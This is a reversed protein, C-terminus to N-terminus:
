EDDCNHCIYHEAGETCAEHSWLQCFLCKVWVEGPLSSSFTEGCVLCEEDKDQSVTPATGGRGLLRKKPASPKKQVRKQQEEELAARVPSDTLIVTSRRKGRQKTDKRPGAKPFPRVNEPIFTQVSSAHRDTGGPVALLGRGEEEPPVASCVAPHDCQDPIASKSGGPYEPLLGGEFLSLSLPQIHCHPTPGCPVLSPVPRDTVYAPSFDQEDFIDSNYPCIGTCVFGSRVNSPTVNSPTAARPLATAVLGPVDYISLTKGPHTRMWHDAATNVYRKLPGFVSRNLPQLRHSCHPPFSLLVIGNSRCFDIAALSLHSWHNDLLLLVKSELNVRTHRAFHQLFALFNVDQM